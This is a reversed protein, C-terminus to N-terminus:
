SAAEKLELVTIDPMLNEAFIEYFVAYRSSDIQIGYHEELYELTPPYFGETAYCSVVARHLADELQARAEASQGSELNSLATFLALVAALACLPVLLFGLASGRGRRRRLM